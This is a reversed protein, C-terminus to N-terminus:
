GPSLVFPFPRERPSAAVEGPDRPRGRELLDSVLHQGAFFEAPPLGAIMKFEKIFHSQDHYCHQYASAALSAQPNRAISRIVSRVRTMQAFRKPPVGLCVQFRKGLQRRSIGLRGAVDAVRPTGHHALFVRSAAGVLSDAAVRDRLVRLLFRDVAGARKRHTPATVVQDEMSRVETGFLDELPMAGQRLAAVGFPFLAHGAAYHLKVCFLGVSGTPRVMAYRDLVGDVYAGPKAIWRAETTDACRLEELDAGFSFGIELHGDPVIHKPERGRAAGELVYYQKVVHRLRPDPQFVEFHMSLWRGSTLRFAGTSDYLEAHALM